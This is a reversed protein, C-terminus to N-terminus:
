HIIVENDSFPNRREALSYLYPYERNLHNMYYTWESVLLKYAREIDGSIHESDELQLILLDGRHDLEDAIHYIAWLMDTFVDHEMLNPNEFVKLMYSKRDILYCKLSELNGKRSDAKVQFDNIIKRMKHSNIDSWNTNSNLDKKLEDFNIIFESLTKILTIGLETYFTSIILDMKKVKLQKERINLIEDLILTVLLVQVPVFAMDQLFYFKTNRSDNFLAIQILYIAVSLGILIIGLLVKGKFIRMNIVVKSSFYTKRIFIVEFKMLRLLIKLLTM